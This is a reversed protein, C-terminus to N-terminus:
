AVRAPVAAPTGPSAERLLAVGLSLMGVTALITALGFVAGVAGASGASEPTDIVLPSLLEGVFLLATGGAALPGGIRAARGDGAVGSRILGLIGMLILLHLVAGCLTFVVFAGRLRLPLPVSRRLGSRAAASPQGAPGAPSHIAVHLQSGEPTPQVSVNRRNGSPRNRPRRQRATAQALPTPMTRAITPHDSDACRSSSNALPWLGSATSPRGVFANSVTPM